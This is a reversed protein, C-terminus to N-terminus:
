TRWFRPTTRGQDYFNEGKPIEYQYTEDPETLLVGILLGFLVGIVFVAIFVTVQYDARQRRRGLLDVVAKNM